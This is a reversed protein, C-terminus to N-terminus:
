EDFLIGSLPKHPHIDVETTAVALPIVVPAASSVQHSVIFTFLEVYRSPQPLEDRIM